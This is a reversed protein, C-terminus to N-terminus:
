QFPSHASLVHSKEIIKSNYFVMEIHVGQSIM